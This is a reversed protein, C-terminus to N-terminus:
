NFEENCDWEVHDVGNWSKAAQMLKREQGCDCVIIDGDPDPYLHVEQMRVENHIQHLNNLLHTATGEAVINVTM